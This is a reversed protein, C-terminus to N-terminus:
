TSGTDARSPPWAPPMARDSVVPTGLEIAKRAKSTASNPSNSVLVSTLRSVGETVDLGASEARSVLIDRDILTDGAIASKMGQVLRGGTELRGPYRHVCPQKPGNRSTRGGWASQYNEKPPCRLLPPAIGMRAADAVLARLVGVLVRTDDLANHARAQPVGYYTALTGLKCDPTPPSVRRALALTWCLTFSKRWTGAM